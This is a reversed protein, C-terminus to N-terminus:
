LALVRAVIVHFLKCIHIIVSVYSIYSLLEQFVPPNSWPNSSIKIRLKMMRLTHKALNNAFPMEFNHAFCLVDTHFDHLRRAQGNRTADCM